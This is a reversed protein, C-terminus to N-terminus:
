ILFPVFAKREKPYNEFKRKYWLHHTLSRPFLNSFTSLVFVWSSFTNTILAFGIWEIFEGLYNPSSIFKFLFFEPIFYAKVEKKKNLIYYDHSINIYMGAFFLSFGIFYRFSFLSLNESTEMFLLISRNQIISNFLCFCFAMLSIEVPWKKEQSKPLKFPFIFTRHIYHILFLSLFLFKKNLFNELSINSFIYFLTIFINPSEQFIWAFTDNFMMFKKRNNSHRGYSAPLFFLYIFTLLDFLIFLLQINLNLHDSIKKDSFNFNCSNIFNSLNELYFNYSFYDNQKQLNKIDM